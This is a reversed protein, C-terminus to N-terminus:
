IDIVDTQCKDMEQINVGHRDLKDLRYDLLELRHDLYYDVCTEM